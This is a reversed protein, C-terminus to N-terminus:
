IYVYLNCVCMFVCVYVCACMCVYMCIYMCVQMMVHSQETHDELLFPDQEEIETRMNQSACVSVYMCVRMCTYINVYMCVYM